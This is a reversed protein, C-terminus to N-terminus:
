KLFWTRARGHATIQVGTSKDPLISISNEKSNIIFLSMVRTKSRFRSPFSCCPFCFIADLRSGPCPLSTGTLACHDPASKWRLRQWSNPSLNKSARTKRCTNPCSCGARQVRQLLSEGTPITIRGKVMGLVLQNRKNTGSLLSQRLERNEHYRPM